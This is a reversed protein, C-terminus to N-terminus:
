ANCCVSLSLGPVCRGGGALVMISTHISARMDLLEGVIRAAPRVAAHAAFVTGLGSRCRTQKWIGYGFHGARRRGSSCTKGDFAQKGM